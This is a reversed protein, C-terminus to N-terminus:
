QFCVKCGVKRCGNACHVMFCKTCRCTNVDHPKASKVPAKVWGAYQMAVQRREADTSVQKRAAARNCANILSQVEHSDALGVMGLFLSRAVECRLAAPYYTLPREVVGTVMNVSLPKQDADWRIITNDTGTMTTGQQDRPENTGRM